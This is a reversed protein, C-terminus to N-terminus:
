RSATSFVDLLVTQSRDVPARETAITGDAVPAVNDIYVQYHGYVGFDVSIRTRRAARTVKGVSGTPIFAVWQGAANKSYSTSRTYKVLAGLPLARVAAENGARVAEKDAKFKDRSKDDVYKTIGKLEARVEAIRGERIAKAIAPYNPKLFEM